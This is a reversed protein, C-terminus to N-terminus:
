EVGDGALQRLLGGTRKFVKHASPRRAPDSSLLQDVLTVVEPSLGRRARQLPRPAPTQPLQGSLLFYIVAGLAYLDVAPSNKQDTQGSVHGPSFSPTSWLTPDPNDISSAGEFDVPRLQGDNGIMLNAPKCDRWVWGARHIQSLLRALQLAYGLAQSQSLRRQRKFLLTQLSHGEIFETVLYHNHNLTFNAYVAPVAVGAARLSNLVREEQEVFWRGDRGDWGVEGGYRGEKVLCSRPPAVSFDVAKYVGGKGRQALSQFVRFTTKLPNPDEPANTPARSSFPNPVWSPCAEETYREDPILKGAPDRMAATRTGDANEIEIMDFSGYRYYVSSNSELRTDFPIIPGNANETLRHLQRAVSTAQKPSHPYVTIFKGIQSYGYYHGANLKELEQLTDPAKFLVGRRKLYPAVAEFVQNATLINASVHLKWGQSPDGDRSERSYRWISGEEAVPLFRASLSRWKDSEVEPTVRTKHISKFTVIPKM